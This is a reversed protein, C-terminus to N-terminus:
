ATIPAPPRRCRDRSLIRTLPPASLAVDIGEQLVAVAASEGADMHLFAHRVETPGLEMAISAGPSLLVRAAPEQKCAVGAVIAIMVVHLM